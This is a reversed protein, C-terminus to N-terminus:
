FEFALSLAVTPHSEDVNFVYAAVDIRDLTLGLLFGRQIDFDTQYAKSRQVVGGVRLWDFPAITLESWSYFYSDSADKTDYVYEGETYLELKWWAVTAEYGPAIGSTAGFVGGVMPTLDLALEEGFSLNWGVWVSATDLDEYNYRAELHLRDRDAAVIPLVYNRDGPVFFTYVSSSLTWREAESAQTEAPGTAARELRTAASEPTQAAVTAALALMTTGLIPHRRM